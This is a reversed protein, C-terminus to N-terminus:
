RDAWIAYQGGLRLWRLSSEVPRLFRFRPPFFMQHSTGIGYFGAQRVGARTEGARLLIANRDIPTRKVVWNTVPNLPNHEFVYVRGGPKLFEHVRAYTAPRESPEVHHLVACMGSKWFPSGGLTM